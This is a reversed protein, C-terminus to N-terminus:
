QLIEKAKNYKKKLRDQEEVPLHVLRAESSNHAIDMRKVALALPNSKIREYYQLNTEGKRMSICDIAAVIHQPFGYTDLYELTVKTDEVIDHLVAVIKQEISECSLMVTLPHLIYPQGAKDNQGAHANTALIIAVNLLQHYDM